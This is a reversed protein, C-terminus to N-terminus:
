GHQTTYSVMIVRKFFQNLFLFVSYNMDPNNKHVHTISTREIKCIYYQQIYLKSLKFLPNLYIATLYFVTCTSMLYM